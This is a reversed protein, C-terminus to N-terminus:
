FLFSGKVVISCCLFIWLELQETPTVPDILFTCNSMSSSSSLCVDNIFKESLALISSQKWLSPQNIM